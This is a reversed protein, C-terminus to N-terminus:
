DRRSRRAPKARGHVRADVHPREVEVIRVPYSELKGTPGLLEGLVIGLRRGLGRGFPARLHGCAALGQYLRPDALRDIMM